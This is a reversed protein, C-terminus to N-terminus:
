SEKKYVTSAVPVIPLHMGALTEAHGMFLYGGPKLHHCLRSLVKQQTPRDFYIIVNRCFIIDMPQYIDYSSEMLNLMQFKVKTRMEPVMRVLKKRSDRSKLLYKKRLKIPINKIKDVDYVATKGCELVRYSLDTGLISFDFGGFGQRLESFLMALSYPEEGTSCGASWINLQSPFGPALGKMMAPIVTNSLYEFHDPERFFETKNTTVVDIMDLIENHKGGKKGFVYDYYHDFNQLGLAKLRRRLRGELMLKKDAPMRIGLESEIYGSFRRFAKKSMPSYLYRKSDEELEVKALAPKNERM